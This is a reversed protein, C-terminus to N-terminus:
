YSTMIWMPRDEFNEYKPRYQRTNYFKEVDVNKKTSTVVSLPIREYRGNQLAVMMGFHKSEILDVALNGYAVGLLSDIADPAGCRVMYGLRQNITEVCNGNGMRSSIEKIKLSVLDGIGGLKRHGFGDVDEGTFMMEEGSPKAGESVLVISYAERRKARDALLLETLREFSFEHEPIVCRDAAGAMTPIMATFGAYRGFMELVLVREHSSACTRLNSAYEVARTVCTSFGLCYDTGPIDNDMTKPIAVVNAINEEALHAAYSLTDDGGIPILYDINLYRLAEIVTPTLDNWDQNYQHALHQPVSEKPVKKPNLRSSHLITGGKRGIDNALVEDIEVIREQKDPSIDSNINVLGEWGNRIGLVRYGVRAARLGVARIAPNLGPVDGGGTLIGITGKSTM